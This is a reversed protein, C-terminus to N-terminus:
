KREDLSGIHFQFVKECYDIDIRQKAKILFIIFNWPTNDRFSSYFHRSIPVMASLKKGMGVM